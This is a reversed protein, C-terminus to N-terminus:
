YVNTKYYTFCIIFIITTQKYTIFKYRAFSRTDSVRLASRSHIDPSCIPKPNIDLVLLATLLTYFHPFVTGFAPLASRRAVTNKSFIFLANVRCHTLLYTLMRRNTYRMYGVNVFRQHVQTSVTMPDCVQWGVSTIRM